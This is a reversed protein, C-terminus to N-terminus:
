EEGHSGKPYPISVTEFIQGLIEIRDFMVVFESEDVLGPAEATFHSSSGVTEGTAENAVADFRLAWVREGAKAVGEITAASIRVFHEAEGDLVYLDLQKEESDPVLELQFVHDGLM